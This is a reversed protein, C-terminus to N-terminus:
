VGSELVIKKKNRFFEEMLAELM